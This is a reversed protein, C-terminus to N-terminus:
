RSEYKRLEKEKAEKEKMREIAQLEQNFATGSKYDDRIGFAEKFKANKEENAQAMQHTETSSSFLCAIVCCRNSTCSTVWHFFWLCFIILYILLINLCLDIMQPSHFSHSHKNEATVVLIITDIYKCLKKTATKRMM